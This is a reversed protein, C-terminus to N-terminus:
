EGSGEQYGSSFAKEAPIKTLIEIKQQLKPGAQKGGVLVQRLHYPSVEMQRAFVTISGGCQRHVYEKLYPYRIAPRRPQKKLVAHLEKSVTQEDYHLIKGIQAWTKGECRLVFAKVREEQEM